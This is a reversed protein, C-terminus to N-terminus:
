SKAKVLTKTTTAIDWIAHDKKKFKFDWHGLLRGYAELAIIAPTWVFYKWDAKTNAILVALVRLGSGTSVKYGQYKKIVMHGAQIRRRQKLFDKVTEPGKNKVFAKDCYAIAYAQGVILPEINAEDVASMPPIRRFIKKFAIIEGCKPHKLAIKHHLEWLLNVAFGMFTNPDNVPIPHGGTMGIKEDRFPRVMEDITTPRPTTDASEMVCVDTKVIDLWLNIASAKGERKEQELLKIRKSKKQFKKVIGVTNDTCGSAIVWIEEIEAIKENQNLLAELIHPINNEENYAMVGISVPIRTNKIM